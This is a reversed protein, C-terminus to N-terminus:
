SISFPKWCFIFVSALKQRGWWPTRCLISPNDERWAGLSSLRCCRTGMSGSGSTGSILLLWAKLVSWSKPSVWSGWLTSDDWGGEEVNEHYRHGATRMCGVPAAHLRRLTISWLLALSWWLWWSAPLLSDWRLSFLLTTPLPWCFWSQLWKRRGTELSVVTWGTSWHVFFDM